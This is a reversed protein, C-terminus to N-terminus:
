LRRTPVARWCSLPSVPLWRNITPGSSPCMIRVAFIVGFMMSVIMSSIFLSVTIVRCIVPDIAMLVQQKTSSRVCKSLYYRAVDLGASLNSDYSPILLVSSGDGELTNDNFDM